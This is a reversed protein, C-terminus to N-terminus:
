KKLRVAVPSIFVVGAFTYVPKSLITSIANLFPNPNQYFNSLGNEIVLRNTYVPLNKKNQTIIYDAKTSNILKQQKWNAAEGRLNSM